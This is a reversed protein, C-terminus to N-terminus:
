PACKTVEEQTSKYGTVMSWILNERHQVSALLVGIVHVPVLGYLAQVSGRHLERLSDVFADSAPLLLGALPGEFELTAQLLLGTILAVALVVLLAVAMLGGAPNHGLHRQPRGRLVDGLYRLSTKPGVVFSSFRAHTTGIAGWALRAAVLALLDIGLAMHVEQMGFHAAPILTLVLAVASWHFIRVFADWVKVRNPAASVEHLREGM